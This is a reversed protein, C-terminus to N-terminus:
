FYLFYTESKRIAPSRGGVGAIIKVSCVAFLATCSFRKITLFDIIGAGVGVPNGISNLANIVYHNQSETTSNPLM